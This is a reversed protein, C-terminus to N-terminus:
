KAMPKVHRREKMKRKLIINLNKFVIEPKIDYKPDDLFTVATKRVNYTVTHLGKQHGWELAEVGCLLSINPIASQSACTLITKTRLLAILLGALSSKKTIEIKNLDFFRDKKDPIYEGEKGCIVFEYSKMLEKDNYIMDFLENWYIWNRKKIGKPDNINNRYRPALIIVPKKTTINEEILNFNEQRPQFEFLRIKRPFQNRNMFAKGSIDPYMHKIIRFRQSYNSHFKNIMKTYQKEPYNDLRFCNPSYETYDGEIKLPVLLDAFKGYLDFRERRTYIIFKVDRNRYQKLKMYPLITAFRAAEWYFEGICPGMLIAEEM